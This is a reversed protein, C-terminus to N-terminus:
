SFGKYGQTHSGVHSATRAKPAPRGSMKSLFRPAPSLAPGEPPNSWCQLDQRSLVPALPDHSNVKPGLMRRGPSM